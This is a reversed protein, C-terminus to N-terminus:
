PLLISPLRAILKKKLPTPPLKDSVSGNPKRSWEEWGDAEALRMAYAPGSLTFGKETYYERKAQSPTM